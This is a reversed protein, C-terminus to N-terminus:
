NAYIEIRKRKRGGLACLGALTGFLIAAPMEILFRVVDAMGWKLTQITALVQQLATPAIGRGYSVITTWKFSGVGSLVPTMDNVFALIALILFVYTLFRLAPRAVSGLFDALGAIIALVLRAVTRLIWVPLIAVRSLRQVTVTALSKLYNSLWSM